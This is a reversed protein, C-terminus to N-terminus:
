VNRKQPEAGCIACDPAKPLRVEQFSMHLADCLLLRGILPSGIGLILKLVEAAQITGVIGPLASYIGSEASNVVLDAPPPEPFLCRYCPGKRANFVSVQGELRYLAGYVYTKGTRVCLDNILYRTRFNDTGDVLIEYDASIDDANRSSFFEARTEVRVHPNLRFLKERASDAKLLGIMGTDHIIQRQLNSLEVTEPDVIGIRGVGAAALHMAVSSGLGGAGVLLVSAAKLLCQGEEGVEPLIITRAYRLREDPTLAPPCM